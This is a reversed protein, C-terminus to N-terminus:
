IEKKALLPLLSFLFVFPLVETSQYFLTQIIVGLLAFSLLKEKYIFCIRFFSFFLACYYSILGLIGYGTLIQLFGSEPVRVIGMNFINGSHLINLTINTFAGTYEGFIMNTKFYLKIITNWVQLRGLNGTDKFAFIREFLAKLFFSINKSSFIIAIFIIFAIMLIPIYVIVIKKWNIIKVKKGISEPLTDLRKFNQDFHEPKLVENINGSSENNSKRSNILLIFYNYIYLLLITLTIVIGSRSFAFFPVCLFILGIIQIVHNKIFRITIVGFIPMLIPYHLMSGTISAPRILSISGYHHSHGPLGYDYIMDHFNRYFFKFHLLDFQEIVGTIFLILGISFLAWVMSNIIDINKIRIINMLIFISFLFVIVLSFIVTENYSHFKIITIMSSIIVSIYFIVLLLIFTKNEKKFSLQSQTILFILFFIVAMTQIIYPLYKGIFFLQFLGRSFILLFIFSLLCYYLNKKKLM